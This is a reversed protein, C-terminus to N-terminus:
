CHLVPCEANVYPTVTFILKGDPTYCCCCFLKRNQIYYYCFYMRSVEADLKIFKTDFHRPALSKLHKDIIRHFSLLVLGDFDSANM